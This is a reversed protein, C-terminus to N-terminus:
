VLINKLERVSIPGARILLPRDRTFDIVSSPQGKLEGGDIVLDPEPEKGEFYKKIEEVNKAPPQGSLNASTQVLPKDLRELLELLFKHDPIRIGLTGNGGSLAEPLKGKHHFIVTVAGPWVNELFKAKDDSIYAFYRAAAITSVFISFAKEEPRKKLAFMKQIAEPNTADGLIGYVTDTPSIVIGGRRLTDIARALAAYKDELSIVEM